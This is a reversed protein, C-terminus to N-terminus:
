LFHETNFPLKPSVIFYKQNSKNGCQWPIARRMFQARLSINDSSRIDTTSTIQDSVALLVAIMQSTMNSLDDSM